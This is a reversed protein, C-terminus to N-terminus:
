ARAAVVLADAAPVERLEVVKVVVLDVLLGHRAEQAEPHGFDALPARHQDPDAAVVFVFSRCYCSGQESSVGM